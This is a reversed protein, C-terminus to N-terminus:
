VICSYSKFHAINIKGDVLNHPVDRHSIFITTYFQSRLINFIAALSSAFRNQDICDFCEDVIFVDPRPGRTLIMSAKSISVNLVTSEFGSLGSSDLTLGGDSLISLAVTYKGSDEDHDIKCSLKYKTETSFITNVTDEFSSLYDRLLIAPIGKHSVHKEYECHVAYKEQLVNLTDMRSKIAEELIETSKLLHNINALSVRLKDLTSKIQDKDALHLSLEARATKLQTEISHSEKQKMYENYLAHLEMLNKIQSLDQLEIDRLLAAAYKDAYKKLETLEFSRTYWGISIDVDVLEDMLREYFERAELHDHYDLLNIYNKCIQLQDTADKLDRLNVAALKSTLLLCKDRLSKAKVLINININELLLRDVMENHKINEELTVLEKAAYANSAQEIYAIGIHEGCLQCSHSCSQSSCTQPELRRLYDLRDMDVHKSAPVDHLLLNDPIISPLDPFGALEKQLLKYQMLLDDYSEVEGKDDPIVGPYKPRRGVLHLNQEAMRLNNEALPRTLDPPLTGPCCPISKTAKSKLTSLKHKIVAQRSLLSEYTEPPKTESHVSILSDVNIIDINRDIDKNERQLQAIRKSIGDLTFDSVKDQIHSPVNNIALKTKAILGDLGNSVTINTRKSSLIAVKTSFDNCINDLEEARLSTTAIDVLLKDRAALTVEPNRERLAKLDADLLSQSAAIDSKLGSSFTKSSALYKDYRELDFMTYFHKALPAPTLKLIDDRHIRTSIINNNNFDSAKGIIKEIVKQTDIDTTGNLDNNGMMFKVTVKQKGHKTLMICREITYSIGNCVIWIKIHGSDKGIHIISHKNGATIGYLAFRLANVLSSKGTMNDSCINIIGASLDVTNEFDDGYIFLNKFCFKQIHWRKPDQVCSTEYYSKHLTIVRSLYDPNCLSRLIEIDNDLSSVTSVHADDPGGYHHVTTDNISLELISYSSRISDLLKLKDKESTDKFDCRVLLKRDRVSDLRELDSVIGGNITIIVRAYPNYVDYPTGSKANIDWLIYGHETEHEGFKQQILSGAYACTDSIFQRKHLHGLLVLDFGEFDKNSPYPKSRSAKVLTSNDQRAGILSGHYLAITTANHNVDSRRIFKLDYLSNFVVCLSGFMYIGTDKLVHIGPLAYCIATISDTRSPNNEAFDHNGIIVAVQTLKSLDSLFRQALVLTENDTRLKTNVLDGTIVILLNSCDMAAIQQMLNSFVSNYEDYRKIHLDIPIHIDSLHLIFKPNLGRTNMTKPILDNDELPNWNASVIDPANVKTVTIKTTGKTVLTPAKTLTNSVPDYAYGEKILTKFLSGDVGIKKGTKPNVVKDM